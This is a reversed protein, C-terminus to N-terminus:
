HHSVPTPIRSPGKEPRNDTRPRIKPRLKMKYMSPVREPKKLSKKARLVVTSKTDLDEVSNSECHSNTVSMCSSSDDESSSDPYLGDESVSLQFDEEQQIVAFEDQPESISEKNECSIMQINQQLHDSDLCIRSNIKYTMYKNHCDGDYLSRDSKLYGLEASKLNKEDKKLKEKHSLINNGKLNSKLLLSKSEIPGTVQGLQTSSSSYYSPNDIQETQDISYEALPAHSVLSTGKPDYPDLVTSRKSSINLSSTSSSSSSYASDTVNHDTVHHQSHKASFGTLSCTGAQTNALIEAELSQHLDNKNCTDLTPPIQVTIDLGKSSANVLNSQLKRDSSGTIRRSSPENIKLVIQKSKILKPTAELSKSHMDSQNLSAQMQKGPSVYSKDVAVQTNHKSKIDAKRKSEICIGNAESQKMDTGKPLIIESNPKAKNMINLKPTNQFGSTLSRKPRTIVTSRGRELYTSNGNSAMTDLSMNPCSVLNCDQSQSRNKSHARHPIATQAAGAREIVHKGEKRNVMLIVAEGKKKPTVSCPPDGTVRLSPFSSENELSLKRPAPTSPEKSRHFTLVRPESRDRQSRRCLSTLGRRRSREGSGVNMDPEKSKNVRQAPSMVSPDLSRRDPMGDPRWNFGANPTSSNSIRHTTFASLKTQQYRHSLAACRCPDHKDLYHELTDWGGGVRVMVHTRLVRIFILASSDGVKYKGESVKIMPFQSPCSCHGLIERVLEDLNRMDCFVRKQLRNPYDNKYSYAEERSNLQFEFREQNEQDRIEEEIEEELQILMPALMGFKAGRRAVELLCLVVNKENRKLVLDNTEFMLVDQIGLEQRCWAIFNSVNDRAVFSGPVVNRSQSLVERRPLKKLQAAEPYELEFDRAARNVNNAHRCLACGTELAELFNDVQIDLDYLTNLWEALDEKMAYLYEESSKFPRISKSAASQINCQDAM